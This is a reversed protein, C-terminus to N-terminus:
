IMNLYDNKRDLLITYACLHSITGDIRKRPDRGKVPAINGNTDVKIETNVLCMKTLNNNNYNILKARLDAEFNKMPDSLTIAGQRIPIMSNKGFESEFNQLTSDDVHWRDFGCWLVYIGYKVRIEVVWDLVDRMDIKYDGSTRLLGQSHYTNYPVGDEKSRELLTMSPLWYMSHSYITNDNPRMMLLTAATLDTTESRDFGLIAYKFGMEGINFKSENNLIEWSLWATSGTQKINFDKVLVTPKFSADVKAKEVYGRLDERNKIVDIAPNAKIWCEEKDWESVDDLEYIFALFHEDEIKGDLVDCAYEYQSDFISDRVFGNTSITTILPQERASTSQKM